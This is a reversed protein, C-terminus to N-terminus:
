MVRMSDARGYYEGELVVISPTIHPLLYLRQRRNEGTCLWLRLTHNYLYLLDSNNKISSIGYTSVIM